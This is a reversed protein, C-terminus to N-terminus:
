RGRSGPAQGGAEPGELYLTPQAWSPAVGLQCCLSPSGGFFFTIGEQLAESSAGHDERGDLVSRFVANVMNVPLATTPISLMGFGYM